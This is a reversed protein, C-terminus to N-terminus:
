GLYVFRGIFLLAVFGAALAMEKAAIPAQGGLAAVAAIAIFPLAPLPLQLLLLALLTLGYGVLLGVGLRKSSLGLKVIAGCLLATFALDGIGLVATVGIGPVPLMLVVYSLAWEAEGTILQNTPAQPTTVSWVDAGLAVISLPWLHSAQEVGRGLAAGLWSTALVLAAGALLAAVAPPDLLGAGYAVLGCALVCLGVRARSLPAQAAGFSAALVTLSLLSFALVFGVIAAMPASEARPWLGDVVLLLGFVAAWAAVGLLAFPAGEQATQPATM